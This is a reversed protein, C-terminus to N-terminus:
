SNHVEILENSKFEDGEENNDEDTTAEEFGKFIKGPYEYNDQSVSLSKLTIHRFIWISKNNDGIEHTHYLKSSIDGNSVFSVLKCVLTVIFKLQFYM